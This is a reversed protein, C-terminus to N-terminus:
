SRLDKRLAELKADVHSPVGPIEAVIDALALVAARTSIKAPKEAPQKPKRKFLDM